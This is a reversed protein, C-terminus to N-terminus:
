AGLISHMETWCDQHGQYDDKLSNSKKVDDLICKFFPLMTKPSRKSHIARKFHKAMFSIWDHEPVNRRQMRAQTPKKYKLTEDDASNWTNEHQFPVDKCSPDFLNQCFGNDENFGKQPTEFSYDPSNRMDEMSQLFGPTPTELSAKKLNYGVVKPFPSHYPQFQPQNPGMEMDKWGRAADKNANVLRAAQVRHSFNVKQTEPRRRKPRPTTDSTWPRRDVALGDRLGLFSRERISAMVSRHRHDDSALPSWIYGIDHCQLEAVLCLGLWTLITKM